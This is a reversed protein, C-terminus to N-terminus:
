VSPRFPIEFSSEETPWDPDLSIGMPFQGQRPSHQGLLRSTPGGASAVLSVGPTTLPPTLALFPSAPSCRPFLQGRRQGLASTKTVNDFERKGPPNSYVYSVARGLYRESEVNRSSGGQPCARTLTTGYFAQTSISTVGDPISFSSSIRGAPYQLLSTQTKNFLVGEASAYAPNLANVEIAALSTCRSFAGEGISTVNESITVRTLKTCGSFAERGINTVSDPITISSLSRCNSFARDGITTVSNGLTVSTLNPYRSFAEIGISTVSDPITISFLAAPCGIFAGDGILTVKRGAITDPIMPSGNPLCGGTITVAGDSNVATTLQALAAFPISLSGLTVSWLLVLARWRFQPSKLRPNLTGSIGFECFLRITADM